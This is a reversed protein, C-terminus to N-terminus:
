RNANEEEKMDQGCRSIKKEKRPLMGLSESSGCERGVSLKVVCERSGETVARM